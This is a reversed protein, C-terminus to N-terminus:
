SFSYICMTLHRKKVERGRERIRATEATGARGATGALAAFAGPTGIGTGTGAATVWAGVTGATGTGTGTGTGVADAGATTALALWGAAFVGIAAADAGVTAAVVVAVEANVAEGVVDEVM